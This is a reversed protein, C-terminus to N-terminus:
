HLPPYRQAALSALLLAKETEANVCVYRSNLTVLVVFGGHEFFHSILSTHMLHGDFFRGTLPDARVHRYVHGIAVQSVVAPDLLFGTVSFPFSYEEAARLAAREPTTLHYIM